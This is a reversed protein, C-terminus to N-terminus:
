FLFQPGAYADILLGTNGSLSTLLNVDLSVGAHRGGVYFGAGAGVFLKGLVVSDICSGGTPCVRNLYQASPTGTQQNYGINGGVSTCGAPKREADTTKGNYEASCQDTPQLPSDTDVAGNKMPRSGDINLGGRWEGGGIDAHIYPRFIRGPSFQYRLKGLVLYGFQGKATTAFCPSPRGQSDTCLNNKMASDSSDANHNLMAEFRGSVGLSLGRWLFAGFEARVGLGSWTFGTSSSKAQEYKTTKPNYFWAVETTTGSTILAGGTGIGLDFYVRDKLGALRQREAEQKVYKMPDEVDESQAVVIGAYPSVTMIIPNEAVGQTGCPRGKADYGEIYYQISKGLLADPPIVGVLDGPQKRSPIMPSETFREQGPSRYFISARAIPISTPTIYLNVKTKTRTESLPTHRLECKKVPDLLDDASYELPQKPPEPRKTEVDLLPDSQTPQAPQVPQQVPQAIPQQVPQAIPQQVPQVPQPMPAQATGTAIAWVTKVEPTALNPDLKANPNISLARRFWQEGRVSDKLQVYVMGLNIYTRAAQITGELAHKRLLAVTDELTKKAANFELRDYDDMAQKNMNAIRDQPGAHAFQGSGAVLVGALLWRASRGMKASSTQKM